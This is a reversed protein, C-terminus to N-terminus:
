QGRKQKALKNALRFLENAIEFNSNQPLRGERRRKARTQQILTKLQTQDNAGYNKWRAAAGLKGFASAAKKHALTAM